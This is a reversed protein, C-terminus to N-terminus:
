STILQNAQVEPWVPYFMAWQEPALRIFHEIISLVTEANQVTEQHLDPHRLMPIPDSAMIRTIGDPKRCGTIVQIPLNHKLALRIHFVPLSAPYGFFVPQYKAEHDPLPRDVGTIVTGNARLTASAQRLAQISMPTVEIGPLTRLKNQMRYAASPKPFSLVQFQAGRLNLARAMLDFNSLHPAVWILPQKKVRSYEFWQEFSPDFEVLELVRQPNNLNHNFDYLSRGTNQLVLHARQALQQNSLSGGSIVSQNARIAQIIKSNEQRAVLGTLFQIFPYAAKPPLIRSLFLGLSVGFRGNFFDQMSM